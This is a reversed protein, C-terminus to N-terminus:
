AGAQVAEGRFGRNYDSDPSCHGDFAMRCQRLWEEWGMGGAEAEPYTPVGAAHYTEAREESFKSFHKRVDQLSVIRERKGTEGAVEAEIHVETLGSAIDSIDPFFKNKRAYAVVAAKADDYAYPELAMVWAAQLPKSKMQQANPWFQGMLSFLREVESKQM